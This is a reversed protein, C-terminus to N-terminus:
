RSKRQWNVRLRSALRRSFRQSLSEGWGFVDAFRKGVIGRGGHTVLFKERCYLPQTRHTQYHVLKPQCLGGRFTAMARLQSYDIDWDTVGEAQMQLIWDGVGKCAHLDHRVMALSFIPEDNVSKGLYNIGLNHYESEIERATRFVSSAEDGRQWLYFDGTFFPFSQVNFTRRIAISDVFWHCAEIERGLTVFQQGAFFQFVGSIDSYCICDSDIFLTAGSFPTMQDLRTKFGVGHCGTFDFPVYKSFGAARWDAEPIGLNSAVALALQPSLRRISRALTAAEDWYSRNGYAVLLIGNPPLEAATM